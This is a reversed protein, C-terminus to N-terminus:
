LAAAAGRFRGHRPALRPQKNAGSRQNPAWLSLNMGRGLQIMGLANALMSQGSRIMCGWGSDSAFGTQDVLQSKIRMSFSLASAARPDASKAIPEFESRYTMWFKSEFDDLFAPPWGGDEGPEEYALSSDFSSSVSDPPTDPAAASPLPPETPAEPPTSITPSPHNRPQSPTSAPTKSYTGNLRYREGLCWVPVDTLADNTPEPDWFLQVIRRYRGLDVNAMTAMASEVTDNLPKFSNM